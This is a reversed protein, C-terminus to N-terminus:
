HPCWQTNLNTKVSSLKEQL